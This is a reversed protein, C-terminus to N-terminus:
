QQESKIQYIVMTVNGIVKGCTMELIWCKIILFTMKIYNVFAAKWDIAGLKEKCQLIVDPIIYLGDFIKMKEGSFTANLDNELHEIM